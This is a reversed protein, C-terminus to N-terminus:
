RSQVRVTFWSKEDDVLAVSVGMGSFHADAIAKAEAIGSFEPWNPDGKDTFFEPVRFSRAVNEDGKEVSESQSMGRFSLTSLRAGIEELTRKAVTVAAPAPAPAPVAPAVPASVPVPATFAPVLLPSMLKALVPLKVPQAKPKAVTTPKAKPKATAQIKKAPKAQQKGSHYVRYAAMGRTPKLKFEKELEEWTRGFDRRKKLAKVRDPNKLFESSTKM